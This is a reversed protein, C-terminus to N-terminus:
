PCCLVYAVGTGAAGNGNFICLWDGGTGYGTGWYSSNVTGNSAYCGGSIPYMNSPCVAYANCTGSTPVSCNAGGNPDSGSAYQACLSGVNSGGAPGPPGQPGPAGAPGPGGQPGPPGQPGVLGTTSGGWTGDSHIVNVGNVTVSSPTIDGVANDAVFAYPVTNLPQRPSLEADTNVTIGLYLSKGAAAASQFIAPALPSNKGLVASFFGQDLTIPGQTETWLLPGASSVTSSPTGQTPDNYLAFKFTVASTVPNGSSDFLRGQETMFLPVSSSSMAPAVFMGVISATGIGLFLGRRSM